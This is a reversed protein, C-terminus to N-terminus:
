IFNWTFIIVVFFLLITLTKKRIENELFLIYIGSVTYSLTPMQWSRPKLTLLKYWVILDHELNM